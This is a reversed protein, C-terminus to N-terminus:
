AMSTQCAFQSSFSVFPSFGYSTSIIACEHRRQANTRLLVLRVHMGGRTLSFNAGIPALALETTTYIAARGGFNIPHPTLIRDLQPSWPMLPDHTRSFLGGFHTLDPATLCPDFSVLNVQM